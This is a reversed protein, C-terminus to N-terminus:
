RFQTMDLKKYDTEESLKVSLPGYERALRILETYFEQKMLQATEGSAYEDMCIVAIGASVAERIETCSLLLPLGVFASSILTGLMFGVIGHQKIKIM